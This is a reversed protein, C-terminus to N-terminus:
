TLLLEKESHPGCSYGMGDGRKSVDKWAADSSMVDKCYGMVYICAGLCYFCRGVHALLCPLDYWM